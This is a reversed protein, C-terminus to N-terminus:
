NHDVMSLIRESIENAANIAANVTKTNNEISARRANEIEQMLNKVNDVETEEVTTLKGRVYLSIFESVRKNVKFETFTGFSQYEEYSANNTTNRWYLILGLETPIVHYLTVGNYFVSEPCYVFWKGFLPEWDERKIKEEFKLEKM